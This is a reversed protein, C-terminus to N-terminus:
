FCVNSVKYVKAVAVLNDDSKIEFDEQDEEDSNVYTTIHPDEM